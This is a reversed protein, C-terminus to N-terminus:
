TSKIGLLTQHPTWLGLCYSISFASLLLIGCLIIFHHTHPTHTRSPVIIGCDPMQKPEGRRNLPFPTCREDLPLLRQIDFKQQMFWIQKESKLNPLLLWDLSVGGSPPKLLTCCILRRGMQELPSIHPFAQATMSSYSSKGRDKQEPHPFLSPPGTLIFTPLGKKRWGPLSQAAAAMMAVTGLSYNCAM